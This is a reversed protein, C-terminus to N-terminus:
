RAELRARVKAEIRSGVQNWKLGAATRIGPRGILYRSNTFAHQPKWRRKYAEDGRLFDFHRDGRETARRIASAVLLTGPSISNKSPDMGAQYYYTSGNLSMAYLAGIPEGEVNLVSLELWGNKQARAAWELHFRRLNSPFAGPQWRRRWRMAHLRFLEELSTQVTSAEAVEITADGSSFPAKELRRVDFRLSKGLSQIYADYPKDLDLVLCEAQRIPPGLLGTLQPLVDGALDNRLQHLDVLVADLDALAAAMTAGVDTADQRILPHLYDSPGKGMPRLVPWTGASRVMPWWGVLDDGEFVALAVPKKRGGFHRFWTELWEFTQFPTANKAVGVLGKWPTEWRDFVDSGEIWRATPM